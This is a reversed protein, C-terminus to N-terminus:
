PTSSLQNWVAGPGFPQEDAEPSRAEPRRGSTLNPVLCRTPAVAQYRRIYSGGDSVSRGLIVSRYMCGSRNVYSGELLFTGTFETQGAADAAPWLRLLSLIFLVRRVRALVVPTKMRLELPM